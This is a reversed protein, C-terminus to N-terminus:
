QKIIKQVKVEKDTTIRLLYVGYPFNNLSIFGSGDTEAQLMLIGTIDYVEIRSSSKKNKIHFGDCFPNPYIYPSLKNTVVEPIDVMPDAWTIAFAHYTTSTDGYIISSGTNIYYEHSKANTFLEQGTGSQSGVYTTYGSKPYYDHGFIPVIDITGDCNIGVPNNIGTYNALNATFIESGPQCAALLNVFEMPISGGSIPQLATLVQFINKEGYGNAILNDILYGPAENSLVFTSGLSWAIAFVKYRSNDASAGGDIYFEPINASTFLELGVPVLTDNYTSYGQHQFYDKGFIPRIGLTGDNNICVPNNLGGFNTLAATFVDSGQPCAALQNVFELPIAGGSVPQLAKLVEFLNKDGYENAILNDIMYGPAENSLVFTSGLSWAIAFARYIIKTGGSIGSSGADIYFEPGNAYTFLKLAVPALTDNYTTYGQKQMYDRGFIGAIFATGDMSIVIPNNSPDSFLSLPYNFLDDGQSSYLTDLFADTIVGGSIPQLAALVSYLCSDGYGNAVLNDILYGPAENSLVFTLVTDADSAPHAISNQAICTITFFLQVLLLSKKM